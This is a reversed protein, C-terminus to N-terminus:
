IYLKLKYCLVCFEFTCSDRYFSPSEAAMLNLVWKFDALAALESSTGSAEIGFSQGLSIKLEAVLKSHDVFGLCGKAFHKLPEKDDVRKIWLLIGRLCCM